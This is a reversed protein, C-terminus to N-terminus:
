QMVGMLCCLGGFFVLCAIGSLGTHIISLGRDSIHLAISRVRRRIYQPAAAIM